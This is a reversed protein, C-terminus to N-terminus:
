RCDKNIEAKTKFREAQEEISNHISEQLYNMELSDFKLWEQYLYDLPKKTKLLTKYESLDFSEECEFAMIIDEKAVLEYASQIIEDPSKTKLESKLDDLEKKLKDYVKNSIITLESSM